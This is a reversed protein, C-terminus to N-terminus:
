LTKTTKWGLKEHAKKSSAILKAVDGKRREGMEFTVPKGLVKEFGKLV